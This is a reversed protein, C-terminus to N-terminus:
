DKSLSEKIQEFVTDRASSIEESIGWSEQFYATTESMRILRRDYKAEAFEYMKRRVPKLKQSQIFKDLDAETSFKLLSTTLSGDPFDFSVLQVEYNQFTEFKEQWDPFANQFGLNGRILKLNQVKAEFNGKSLLAPPQFDNGKAKSILINAVKMCASTAEPGVQSSSIDYYLRGKVFQVQQRNGCYFPMHSFRTQCNLHSASYIGFAAASDKMLYAQVNVLNGQFMLNQTKLQTFGYELYLDAGGNIHGWLSSDTFTERGFTRLAPIDNKEILPIDEQAMAPLFVGFSLLCLLWTNLQKMM